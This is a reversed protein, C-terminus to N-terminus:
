QNSLKQPVSLGKVIDGNAIQHDYFEKLTTGKELNFAIIKFYVSPNVPVNLLKFRVSILMFFPIFPVQTRYM